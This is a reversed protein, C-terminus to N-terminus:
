FPAETATDWVDNSPEPQEEEGEEEMALRIYETSAFREWESQGANEREQLHM